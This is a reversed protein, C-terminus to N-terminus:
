RNWGTRLLASVAERALDVVVAGRTRGAGRRVANQASNKALCAGAFDCSGHWSGDSVSSRVSHLEPRGTWWDGKANRPEWRFACEVPYAALDSTDVPNFIAQPVPWVPLWTLGNLMRELLYYFPMARAVSWSVSSERVLQEGALKVRAYPLSADDLGVISVHLFYKVGAKECLALLRRTGDLDVASPSKFFDIPRFGGRRAIPPYTAANIVAHVDRL